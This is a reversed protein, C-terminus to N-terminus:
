FQDGSYDSCRRSSKSFSRVCRSNNENFDEDSDCNNDDYDKEEILCDIELDDESAQGTVLKQRMIILLEDIFASVSAPSIARLYVVLKTM